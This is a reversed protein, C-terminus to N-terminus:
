SLEQYYKGCASLYYGEKNKKMALIYKKGLQFNTVYPRCLGGNDGWIKINKRFDQGQIISEIEVIMYLPARDDKRKEYEKIQATIVTLISQNAGDINEVAKRNDILVTEFFDESVSHCSCAYVPRSYSLSFIIVLLLFIKKM